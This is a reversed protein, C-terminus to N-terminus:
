ATEEQKNERGSAMGEAYYMLNEKKRESMTEVAKLLREGIEKERETM